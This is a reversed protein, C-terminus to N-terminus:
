STASDKEAPGPGWVEPYPDNGGGMPLHWHHLPTSGESNQANTDAGHDLSLSMINPQNLHNSPSTLCSLRNDCQREKSLMARRMAQRLKRTSYRPVFNNCKTGFTILNPRCQGFCPHHRQRERSAPVFRPPRLRLGVQMWHPHSILPNLAYLRQMRAHLCKPRCDLRSLCSFLRSYTAPHTSSSSPGDAGANAGAAEPSGSQPQQLGMWSVQDGHTADPHTLIFPSLGLGSVSRMAASLPASIIRIHRRRRHSSAMTHLCRNRGGIIPQYYWRHYSKSGRYFAISKTARNINADHSDYQGTHKTCSSQVSLQNAM